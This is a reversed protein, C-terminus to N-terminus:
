SKEKANSSGPVMRPRVEITKKQLACRRPNGLVCNGRRYEGPSKTGLDVANDLLSKLAPHDVFHAKLAGSRCIVGSGCRRVLAEM